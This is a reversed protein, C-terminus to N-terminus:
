HSFRAFCAVLVAGSGPLRTRQFSSNIRQARAKQASDPLTTGTDKCYDLFELATKSPHWNWWGGSNKPAEGGLDGSGCAGNDRIHALVAEFEAEFDHKHWNRWREPLRAADRAFRLQWHPPRLCKKWPSRRHQPQARQLSSSAM